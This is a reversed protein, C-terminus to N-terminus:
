RKKRKKAPKRQLKPQKAPVSIKKQILPKCRKLKWSIVLMSGLIILPLSIIVLGPWAGPEYFDFAFITCVGMITIITGGVLEWKSAAYILLLLVLWPIANPSNMIIGRLGGGYGEAGSLLAFIFVLSALVALASISITKLRRAM